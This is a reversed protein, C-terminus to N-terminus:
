APLFKCGNWLAEPALDEDNPWVVTGRETRAQSFYGLNKLRRYCPFKLYPSVDFVGKEGTDFALSLLYGDLAEVETVQRLLEM